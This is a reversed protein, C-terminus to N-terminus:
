GGDGYGGIRRCRCVIMRRENCTSRGFRHKVPILLHPNPGSRTLPLFPLHHRIRMPIDFRPIDATKYLRNIAPDPCTGRPMGSSSSAHAGYPCDSSALAPISSPRPGRTRLLPNLSTSRTSRTSCASAVPVDHDRVIILRNEHVKTRGDLINHSWLYRAYRKGHRSSVLWLLSVHRFGVVPRTLVPLDRGDQEM